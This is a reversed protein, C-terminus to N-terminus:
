GRDLITRRLRLTNVMELQYSAQRAFRYGCFVEAERLGCAYRRERKSCAAKAIISSGSRLRRARASTTSSASVGDQPPPASLRPPEFGGKRVLKSRNVCCPFAGKGNLQYNTSRRRRTTCYGQLPSAMRFLRFVFVKRKTM